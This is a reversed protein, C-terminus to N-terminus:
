IIYSSIHTLIELSSGNRCSQRVSIARHMYTMQSTHIHRCVDIGAIESKLPTVYNKHATAILMSHRDGYPCALLTDRSLLYYVTIVVKDLLRKLVKTDRKVYIATSCAGSVTLQRRIEESLKVILPLKYLLHGLLKIVLLRPTEQRITVDPTFAGSAM